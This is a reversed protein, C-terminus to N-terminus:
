RIVAWLGGKRVGNEGGKDRGSLHLVGLVSVVGWASAYHPSGGDFRAALFTRM